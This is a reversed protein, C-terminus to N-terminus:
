WREKEIVVAYSGKRILFQNEIKHIDYNGLFKNLFLLQSNSSEDLNIAGPTLNKVLEYPGIRILKAELIGAYPKKFTLINDESLEVDLAGQDFFNEVDLKNELSKMKLNYSEPDTPINAKLSDLDAPKSQEKYYRFQWENCDTLHYFGELIQTIQEAVSETRELEIFVSYTGDREEGSSMDADLVFKYGKEIFEMTDIAAMKEKVRFGLVVIGDDDGMKSKYQDISFVPNIMDALDGSRLGELLINHQM